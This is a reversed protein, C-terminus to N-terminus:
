CFAFRRMINAVGGPANRPPMPHRCLPCPNKKWKNLCITHMSHHCQLCWTAHSWIPELCMCCEPPSYVPNYVNFEM